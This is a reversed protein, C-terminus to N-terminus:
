GVVISGESFGRETLLKKVKKAHDGQLEIHGNKVTGGCACKSKLQSTLDDLDIDGEDIGEVITMPKGYTRKEVYVRIQQEEKAIEECICLESPLGCKPCVAESM